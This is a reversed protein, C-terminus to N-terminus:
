GRNGKRDEIKNKLPKKRLTGQTHNNRSHRSPPSASLFWVFPENAARKGCGSCTRTGERPSAQEPCLLLPPFHFCVFFIQACLSHCAFYRDHNLARLIVLTCVLPSVPPFDDHPTPAGYDYCLCAHMRISWFAHM